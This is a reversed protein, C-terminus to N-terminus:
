YTSSRFPVPLITSGNVAPSTFRTMCGPGEPLAATVTSSSPLGTPSTRPASTPESPTARKSPGRMIRRTAPAARRCCTNVKTVLSGPTRANANVKPGYLFHLGLTCKSCGGDVRNRSGVLSEHVANKYYSSPSRFRKRRSHSLDRQHPALRVSQRIPRSM